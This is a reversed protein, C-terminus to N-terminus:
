RDAAAVESLVDAAERALEEDGASKALELAVAAEARATELDGDRRHLQALRLVPKSWTPALERSRRLAKEAESRSGGLLKPLKLLMEGRAEWAHAHNPDLEITKALAAKLESLNTFKTALGREQSQGGLSLFLAYHADAFKPDLAISRRALDIGSEYLAAAGAGATGAQKYAAFSEDALRRAEAVQTSEAARSQAVIGFVLVAAVILTSRLRVIKPQLLPDLFPRSDVQYAAPRRM